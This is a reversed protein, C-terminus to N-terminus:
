KKGGEMGEEAGGEDTPWCKRVAIYALPKHYSNECNKRMEECCWIGKGLVPFWQLPLINPNCGLFEAGSM